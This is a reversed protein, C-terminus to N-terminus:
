VHLYDPWKFESETFRLRYSASTYRPMDTCFCATAPVFYLQWFSLQMAANVQVDSRM